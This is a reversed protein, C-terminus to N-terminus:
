GLQVGSFPHVAGTFNGGGGSSSSVDGNVYVAQGSGLWKLGREGAGDYVYRNLQVNVSVSRLRNEEDWVMKQRQGTKDDTWGTQNGDADYAYTQRGIHTAAHPQAASYTYSYDYTTKNQPIWKNGDPNKDNSQTKRTIGGVTNYQLTMDYRDQEHPGKYSGAASTLRYLDDYGYTYAGAGGMLNSSPVPANNTLSMINDMRDYTYTNDMIKSGNGATTLQNQLRRRDPEYTYNSQTGNGYGMFVRSEFKDYGLQQVYNTVQGERNGSMSLLQGGLNYTYSVVESDPYIM